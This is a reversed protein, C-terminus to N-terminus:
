IGNEIRLRSTVRSVHMTKAQCSALPLHKSSFYMRDETLHFYTYVSRVIFLICLDINQCVFLFNTFLFRLQTDRINEKTQIRWEMGPPM